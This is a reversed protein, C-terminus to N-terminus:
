QVTPGSGQVTLVVGTQTTQGNYQAALTNDGNAASAPVVVNFQYLGPSVLGAFKVTAAIGGIQVLPLAPLTGSQQESGKVVGSSTAGFGNAYLIVTEGPQAPTTLGPYLTTPGVDTYNLHQAVVHTGDFVFFSPSISQAQVAITTSKQSGVTVQVQVPGASLDPPTLINL